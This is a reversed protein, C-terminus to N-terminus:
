PLAASAKAPNQFLALRLFSLMLYISVLRETAKM